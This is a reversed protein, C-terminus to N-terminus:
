PAEQYHPGDTSRVAANDTIQENPGTARARDGDAAPRAGDARAPGSAISRLYHVSLDATSLRSGEPLDAMLTRGAAVDVLTAILGGQLGGRPNTIREDVALEMAYDATTTAVAHLELQQFLHDGAEIVEQHTRRGNM